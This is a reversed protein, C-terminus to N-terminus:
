FFKLSALITVVAVAMLGTRVTLDYKLAAIEQRVDSRLAVIDTRLATELNKLDGKTAVGARLADEMADAHARAQDAAIGAGTLRDVYRLRDFLPPSDATTM